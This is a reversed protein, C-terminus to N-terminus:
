TERTKIRNSLSQRPPQFRALRHAAEIMMTRLTLIGAKILGGDAERKGSSVNKPSVACYRALQKGCILRDFSGIEARM